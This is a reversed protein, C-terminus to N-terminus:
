KSSLIIEWIWLISKLLYKIYLSFSPYVYNIQISLDNFCSIKLIYHLFTYFYTNHSPNLIILRGKTYKCASLSININFTLVFYIIFTILWSYLFVLANM